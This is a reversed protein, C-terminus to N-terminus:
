ENRLADVPNLRSARQSPILCALASIGLLILSTLLYTAPDMAKIGFLLNQLVNGFAFSVVLGAALGFVVPMLGQGLMTRRVDSPRAGLAMRIGIENTRRSVAFSLVGYIGLCALVLAMGAFGVLLLLQFRRHAVSDSVVDEMMRIDSVPAQPELGLVTSRIVSALGKPDEATRVILSMGQDDNQWFPFYEMNEASQTLSAAHVAGVVGIVRWPKRKGMSDYDKMLHGIASEGPWLRKALNDSIVTVRDDGDSQQFVRGEKLAIGAAKFYGSSSWVMTTMPWQTIPPIPRDAATMPNNNNAATLPLNSTIGSATIGPLAQMKDLLRRYFQGITKANKYKDSPLEVYATLLHEVHVGPDVQLVRVFSRILLGAALLLVVSLAVETAVLARGFQHGKKNGTASRSSSQLAEQPDIRAARWAPWVGFLIASGISVALAFALAVPDLHLEDIRPLDFPAHVRVLELLWVALVAGLAGGAFSLLLSEFLTDRILERVGAGIALRIAWERRRDTSRVLMLNMLNICVIVLVLCVACFLVILPQRVNGALSSQLPEILPHIEVPQSFKKAIVSELADLDSNAQAISVGPKLRALGLFNMESVPDALEEKTFALPIWYQTREPLPEIDALQRGRPFPFFPPTVGVVQFPQGNLLIKRGLVNPDANFKSRWLSDSLVVVHSAAETTEQPLFARGLRPQIGFLDFLNPTVRVGQLKVPGGAGSLIRGDPGILAIQKLTRNHQQWFQYHQGNVPVKAALKEFAPIRLMLTTLSAPDRYSLPKFLITRTITFMATTSGIGLALILIALATFGPTRRLGRLAFRIAPFM